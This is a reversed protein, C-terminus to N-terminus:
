AKWFVHNGIEATKTMADNWSPNIDTTHYHTAGFTVDPLNGSMAKEAISYALDFTSNDGRDLNRIKDANPDNENWASFQWPETVVAVVGAVRRVVGGLLTRNIVVNAVAQMGLAGEGRAEGYITRALMLTAREMQYKWIGIAGIAFMVLVGARNM